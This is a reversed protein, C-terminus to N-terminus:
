PFTRMLVNKNILLFTDHRIINETESSIFYIFRLTKLFAFFSIKGRFKFFIYFVSSFIVFFKKDWNTGFYM